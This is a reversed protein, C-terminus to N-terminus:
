HGRMEPRPGGCSDVVYRTHMAPQQKARSQGSTSRSTSSRRRTFPLKARAPAPRSISSGCTDHAARSTWATSGHVCSTQTQSARPIPSPLMERAKAESIEFPGVKTDGMFSIGLNEKLRRANTVDAASTLNANIHTVRRAHALAHEPADDKEENLLREKESGDDFGVMSVRVAVGDQIWKRDAQAYFIDGTEKIRQLVRRNAGGRIAQTALLGVRKARGAEIARRGQEFWYCCLDSERAVQGDWAAFLKDVYEDGLHKRLLKGGLFPPNGVIVDAEPWEPIRPQNPDSCTM